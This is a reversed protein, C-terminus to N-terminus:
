SFKFSVFKNIILFKNIASVFLRIGRQNIASTPPTATNLTAATKKYPDYEPNPEDKYINFILLFFSSLISYNNLM